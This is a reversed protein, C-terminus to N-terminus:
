DSPRRLDFFLYYPVRAADELEPRRRIAEESPRPERVGGVLFGAELIWQFWDELTAHFAETTFPQDGWTTWEFQLAGREFYRDICLWRKAGGDGREWERHPTDTCPHTISAVFRGGPRLLTYVGRLAAPIDAMDQLALCSTALDFSAPELDAPLAAADLVRYRIGLPREAESREAHAIMRPAVDIGVVRAGRSALERSLYGNGCGVDLLRLASVEGCLTVHAPGFFEYRYFDRGAGQGEAWADAARDWTARVSEADFRPARKPM